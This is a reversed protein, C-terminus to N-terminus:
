SFRMFGAVWLRRLHFFGVQEAGIRLLPPAEFSLVAQPRLCRTVEPVAGPEPRTRMQQIKAASRSEGSKFQRGPDTGFAPNEGYVLRRAEDVSQDAFRATAPDVLERRPHLPGLIQLQLGGRQVPGKRAPDEAKQPIGGRDDLPDHRSHTRAAAQHDPIIQVVAGGGELRPARHEIAHQRRDLFAPFGGAAIQVHPCTQRPQDHSDPHRKTSKTGSTFNM